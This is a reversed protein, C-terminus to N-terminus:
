RRSSPTSDHETPFPFPPFLRQGHSCKQSPYITIVANPSFCVINRGFRVKRHSLFFFPFCSLRPSPFPQITTLEPCLPRCQTWSFCSIVRNLRRFPRFPMGNRRHPLSSSHSTASRMRNQRQARNGGPHSSLFSLSGAKAM